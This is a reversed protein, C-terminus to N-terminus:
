YQVAPDIDGIAPVKAIASIIAAPDDTNAQAIGAVDDTPARTPAAAADPRRAPDAAVPPRQKDSGAIRKIGRCPTVALCDKAQRGIQVVVLSRLVEEGGRIPPREVPLIGVEAAGIREQQIHRRPAARFPEDQREALVRASVEEIPTIETADAAAMSGLNHRSAWDAGRRRGISGGVTDKDCELPLTRM